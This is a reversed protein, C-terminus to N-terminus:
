EESGAPSCSRAKHVRVTDGPKLGERSGPGRCRCPGSSWTPAPSRCRDVCRGDAGEAAFRAGPSTVRHRLGRALHGSVPGTFTVRESGPICRKQGMMFSSRPCTANEQWPGCGMNYRSVPCKVRRDEPGTHGHSAGPRATWLADCRGRSHPRPPASPTTSARSLCRGTGLHPCLRLSRCARSCCLHPLLRKSPAAPPGYGLFAPRHQGQRHAGPLRM